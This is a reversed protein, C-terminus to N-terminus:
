NCYENLATAAAHSCSCCPGPEITKLALRKCSSETTLLGRLVCVDLVSLFLQLAARPTPLAMAATLGGSVVVAQPARLGPETRQFRSPKQQFFDTNHRLNIPNLRMRVAM